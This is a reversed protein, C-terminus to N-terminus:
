PGSPQPGSTMNGRADYAPVIWNAQGSGQSIGKIENAKNNTRTQDLDWNGEGGADAADQFGAWNGIQDLTFVQRRDDDATVATNGVNLTGRRFEGLRNLGDYESNATANNAHYLEGLTSGLENRRYLRTSNRDYGYTFKDRDAAGGYDYWLQQGIRGFRDLGAYTDAVQGLRIMTEGKLRINGSYGQGAVGDPSNIRM